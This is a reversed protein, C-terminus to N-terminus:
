PSDGEGAGQSVPPGPLPRLLPLCLRWRGGERLLDVETPQGAVEARVRARDGRIELTTVQGALRSPDHLLPSTGQVVMAAPDASVAGGTADSAEKARRALEERTQQSLLKLVEAGDGRALARHYQLVADEPSGCASLLLM